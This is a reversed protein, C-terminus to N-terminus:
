INIRMFFRESLWDTWPIMKGNKDFPLADAKVSKALHMLAADGLAFKMRQKIADLTM